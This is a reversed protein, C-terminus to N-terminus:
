SHSFPDREIANRHRRYLGRFQDYTLGLLEAAARRNHRTRALAARLAQEELRRVADPLTFGEPLGPPVGAHSAPPDHAPEADARPVGDGYPHGAPPNGTRADDQAAERPHTSPSASGAGMATYHEQASPAGHPGPLAGFAHLHGGEPAPGEHGTDRSPGHPGHPGHLAPADPPGPICHSGAPPYPERPASGPSHGGARVPPSFAAADAHVAPGPHWPSAFPTTDINEVLGGGAKLVSREVANKLERINGPWTHAYLSARAAHSFSPEPLDTEAAFDAAFHRALLLVDDGRARLPPLHLVCFALRDLLDARFRGERVLAPLDANTAAVIRVDATLTHAGGIREYQGYEVVRLLKDQVALPLNGAEDLFLTGGDAREFRGPHRATAGTFSGAEHGFLEAEALSPTLAAGDLVVLPGQWRPSLYHLRMAALEKGTGREGVLLVPRDAAAARSLDEQFALFADSQGLAEVLVPMATNTRM